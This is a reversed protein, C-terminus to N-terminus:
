TVGAVPADDRKCKGQPFLYSLGLGATGSRSRGLLGENTWEHIEHNNQMNGYGM